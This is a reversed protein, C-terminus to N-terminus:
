ARCRRRDSLKTLTAAAAGDKGQKILWRPSEPIALLSLMFLLAPITESGFMWRWGTATNWAEDGM